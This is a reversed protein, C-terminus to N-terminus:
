AEVTGGGASVRRIGVPPLRADVVTRGSSVRVGGPPRRAPHVHPGHSPFRTWQGAAGEQAAGSEDRGGGPQGEGRAPRGGGAGGTGGPGGRGQDARTPRRERVAHLGAVDAVAAGHEPAAGVPRGSQDGLDRTVRREPVRREHTARDHCRGGVEGALDREVVERVARVTAVQVVPDAGDVEVVRAAAALRHRAPEPHRGSAAVVDPEQPRAVDGALSPADVGVQAPEADGVRHARTVGVEEQAAAVVDVGVPGDLLGHHQGVPRRPAVDGGLGLGLDGLGQLVEAPLVLVVQQGVVPAREEGLGRLHALPVVVLDEVVPVGALDEVVDAVGLLADVDEGGPRVPGEVVVHRHGVDRRVGLAADVPHEVVPVSSSRNTSSMRVNLSALEAPGRSRGGVAPEQALALRAPQQALQAARPAVQFTIAASRGIPSTTGSPAVAVPLTGGLAVRAGREPPLEVQRPQQGRM